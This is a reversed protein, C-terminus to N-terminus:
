AVSTRVQRALTWRSDAYLTTRGQLQHGSLIALYLTLIYMPCLVPYLCELVSFYGLHSGTIAELDQRSATIMTQATIVAKKSTEHMM